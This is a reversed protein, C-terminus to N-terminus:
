KRDGTRQDQTDASFASDHTADASAEPHVGHAGATDADRDLESKPFIARLATLLPGAEVETPRWDMLGPMHWGVRLPEVQDAVARACTSCAYFHTLAEGQRVLYVNFGDALGDLARGERGCAGCHITSWVPMPVPRRRRM